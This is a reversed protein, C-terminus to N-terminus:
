TDEFRIPKPMDHEDSRYYPRWQGIYACNIEKFQNLADILMDIEHSDEFVIMSTNPHNIPYELELPNLSKYTHKFNTHASNLRLHLEDIHGKTDVFFKM